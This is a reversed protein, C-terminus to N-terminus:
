DFQINLNGNNDLLSNWTKLFTEKSGLKNTTNRLKNFCSVLNCKFNFLEKCRLCLINPANGM